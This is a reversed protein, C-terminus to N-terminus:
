NSSIDETPLPNGPMTVDDADSSGLRARAVAVSESAMDKVKGTASEYADTQRLNEGFQRMQEYRPRGAKAGLYYGVGFGVVAGLKFGM